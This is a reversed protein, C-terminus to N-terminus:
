YRMILDRRMNIRVTLFRLLSLLIGTASIILIAPHVMSNM